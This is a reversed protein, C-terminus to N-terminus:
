KTQGTKMKMDSYIHSMSYDFAILKGSELNNAIVAQLPEEENMQKLKLLPYVFKLRYDYMQIVDCHRLIYPEGAKLVAGNVTLAQQKKLTIVFMNHDNLRIEASPDSNLELPQVGLETLAVEHDQLAHYTQERVM